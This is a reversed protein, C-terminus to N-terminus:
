RSDSRRDLMRSLVSWERGVADAARVVRSLDELSIGDPHQALETLVALVRDSGVLKDGDVAAAVDEGSDSVTGNIATM